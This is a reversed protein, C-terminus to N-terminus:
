RRLAYRDDLIALTCPPPTFPPPPPNMCRETKTYVYKNVCVHERALHAHTGSVCSRLARVRECGGM